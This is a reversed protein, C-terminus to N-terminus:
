KLTLKKKARARSAAIRANGKRGQAITPLAKLIQNEAYYIDRLTHEFLDNFTKIDKTFFGM